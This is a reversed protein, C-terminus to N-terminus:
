EQHPCADCARFDDRTHLQIYFDHRGKPGIMPHLHRGIKTKQGRIMHPFLDAAAQYPVFHEACFKSLYVFGEPAEETPKPPERKKATQLGQLQRELTAVRARLENMEQELM